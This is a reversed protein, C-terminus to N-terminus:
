HAAPQSSPTIDPCEHAPSSPQSPRVQDPQPSPSPLLHRRTAPLGLRHLLGRVRAVALWAAALNAIFVLLLAAAWGLGSALLAAVIGGWLAFWLTVGLIAVVVVLVAIQALAQAAREVELALLEVRDTVLGPLDRLLAELTKL